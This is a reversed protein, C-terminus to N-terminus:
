RLPGSRRGTDDEHRPRERDRDEREREREEQTQTYIWTHVLDAIKAVLLLDERGFSESRKWEKDKEDRYIRSFLTNYRVGGQPLENKWIAAKVAGLRVEHIPKEKQM